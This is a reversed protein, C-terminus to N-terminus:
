LGKLRRERGSRLGSSGGPWWGCLGGKLELFVAGIKADQDGPKMAGTRWGGAGGGPVGQGRRGEM